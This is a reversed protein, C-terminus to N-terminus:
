ERREYFFFPPSGCFFLLFLLLLQHNHGPTKRRLFALLFSSFFLIPFAEKLSESQGDEWEKAKLLATYQTRTYQPPSGGRSRRKNVMFPNVPRDLSGM